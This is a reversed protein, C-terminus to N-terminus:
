VNLSTFIYRNFITNFRQEYTHQAIAKSFGQQAINQREDNQKLYYRIKDIADDMDRYMAVEKGDEYYHTLEESYGTLMFQGTGPVEFDRGKIQTVASTSAASINLNIKSQNYIQIMEMLSVRGHGWGTGWVDVKIGARRIKEIFNRRVGHPQGIFTVDYIQPLNLPRYLFHNCAWQSYIVNEYGIKHYKAVADKTTTINWNFHEAWYQTFNDFRWHDDSNFNITITRTNNSIYKLVDKSVKDNVIVFFLIDPDYRFVAEMLMKNMMKLGYKKRIQGFDFGIIEHGMNYLSHFFNNQEYSFGLQPKNGEFQLAAYLIRLPKAVQPVPKHMSYITDQLCSEVSCRNNKIGYLFDKVKNHM